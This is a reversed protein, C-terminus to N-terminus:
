TGYKTTLLALPALFILKGWLMSLEDDRIEVDVDVARLHRAFTVVREERLGDDDASIALEVKMFPSAHEIVGRATRTSAVRM